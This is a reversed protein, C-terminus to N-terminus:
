HRVPTLHMFQSFKEHKIKLIKKKYRDIYKQEIANLKQACPKSM